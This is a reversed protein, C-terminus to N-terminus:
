ARHGSASASDRFEALSQPKAKALANFGSKSQAKNATIAMGVANPLGRTLSFAFSGDLGAALADDTLCAELDTKAAIFADLAQRTIESMDQRTINTWELKNKFAM